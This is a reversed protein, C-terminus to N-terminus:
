RTYSTYTHHQAIYCLGFCLTILWCTHCSNREGMAYLMAHEAHQHALAHCSTFGTCMSAHREPHMTGTSHGVLVQEFVEVSGSRVAWLLMSYGLENHKNEGQLIVSWVLSIPLTLMLVWGAQCYGQVERECWGAGHQHWTRLTVCVHWLGTSSTYLTLHM